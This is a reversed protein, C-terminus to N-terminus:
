ATAAKVAWMSAEEVTTQALAVLRKVKGDPSHPRGGGQKLRHVEPDYDAISLHNTLPPGTGVHSLCNSYKNSSKATSVSWRSKRRPGVM